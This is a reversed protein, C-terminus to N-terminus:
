KVIVTKLTKGFTGKSNSATFKILYVGSSVNTLDFDMSYQGEKQSKSWLTNIKQGYLSYVEINVSANSPLDYDITILGKSPNPYSKLNINEAINVNETIGILSDSSFVGKGFTAIYMKNDPIFYLATDEKDYYGGIQVKKSVIQYVPVRGLGDNAEVWTPNGNFIDTATWVGQETGIFITNTNHYNLYASYVPMNPLNTQVQTYTPNASLANNSIYVKNSTNDFGGMTVVIQNPNNHNVAIDTIWSNATTDINGTIDTFKSPNYNVSDPQHANVIRYVRNSNTGAFLTHSTDGSVTLCTIMKKSDDADGTHFLKESIRTWTTKTPDWPEQIVWINARSAFYIYTSNMLLNSSNTIVEDIEMAPLMPGFKNIDRHMVTPPSTSDARDYSVEYQSIINYEDLTNVRNTDYYANNAPFAYFTEFIEGKTLTRFPVGEPLWTNITGNIYSQFRNNRDGFKFIDQVIFRSSLFKSIIPFGARYVFGKNTQNFEKAQPVGPLKTLTGANKTGAVLFGDSGVAVGFTQAGLIGKTKQTYISGGVTTKMLQQNTGLYFTAPNSPDFAMSNIGHPVFSVLQEDAFNNMGLGRFSLLSFEATTYNYSYLDNGGIYIVDSQTPHVKFVVNEIGKGGELNSMPWYSPVTATNLYGSAPIKSQGSWTAGKDSSTWIGWIRGERPLSSVTSTSTQGNYLAMVYVINPDNEAPAIEIRTKGVKYPFIGSLDKDFWNDTGDIGIQSNIANNFTVGGDTSIFLSDNTSAYVVSGDSNFEVDYVPETQLNSPGTILNVTQFDDTTVYLGENTAAFVRGNYAELKNVSVWPGSFNTQNGTVTWTANNNSFSQANDTSVFVGNGPHGVYGWFGFKVSDASTNTTTSSSYINSYYNSTSKYMASRDQDGTGVYVKGTVPDVAMSSVMSNTYEFNSVPMWTSGGNSSRYLGGGLVGALVDGNSLVEIARIVGGYNNPGVSAWTQANAKSGLGMGFLLSLFFLSLKKM